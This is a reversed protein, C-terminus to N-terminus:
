LGIQKQIEFGLGSNFGKSTHYPVTVVNGSDNKFVKHSGTQRIETYGQEKVIKIMQKSSTIKERRVRVSQCVDENVDNINKNSELESIIDNYLNANSFIKEKLTERISNLAVNVSDIIRMHIYRAVKRIELSARNRDVGRIAINTIFKEIIEDSVKINLSVIENVYGVTLEKIDNHFHILIYIDDYLSQLYEDNIVEPKLFLDNIRNEVSQLDENLKIEIGSQVLEGINLAFLDADKKFKEIEIKVVKNVNM